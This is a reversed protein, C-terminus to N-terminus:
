LEEHEDQAVLMVSSAGPLAKVDAVLGSVQSPDHLQLQYAYELEADGAGERLHMLAFTRCYHGLIRRLLAEQEPTAPMRFRLVGDRGLRAGFRIRDLYLCVLLAFGTGVVALLLQHAGVAIGISVALFLFATDRSDKIPTRFRILALAGFLGFARALSDGIALMVITVVMSLIVLSQVFSRSYSMGHHTHVYVWALPKSLVFSVLLYLLFDQLTPLNTTLSAAFSQLFEPM